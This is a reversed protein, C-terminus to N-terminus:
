PEMTFPQVQACTKFNQKTTNVLWLSHLFSKGDNVGAHKKSEQCHTVLFLTLVNKNVVKLNNIKTSQTTNNFWKSIKKMRVSISSVRTVNAFEMKMLASTHNKPVSTIERKRLVLNIIITNPKLGHIQLQEL